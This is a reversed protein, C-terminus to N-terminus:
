ATPATTKYPHGVPLNATLGWKHALYGELKQRDGIDSLVVEAIDGAWITTSDTGGVTLQYTANTSATFGSFSVTHLVTGDVYTSFSGSSLDYDVVIIEDTSVPNSTTLQSATSNSPSIVVSELGASSRHRVLVLDTTSSNRVDVVHQYANTSTRSVVCALRFDTAGSMLSTGTAAMHDESTSFRVSSMGNIASTKYIPDLAGPVALNNGNGSGDAWTSVAAGDSVGSISEADYWARLNSLLSPDWLTSTTGGRRVISYWSM